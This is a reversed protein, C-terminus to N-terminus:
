TELSFQVLWLLFWYNCYLHGLPLSLTAASLSIWFFFVVHSIAFPSAFLCFTTQSLWIICSLFMFVYEVRLLCKLLIGVDAMKINIWQLCTLKEIFLLSIIENIYRCVMVQKFASIKLHPLFSFPEKLCMFFLYLWRYKTEKM